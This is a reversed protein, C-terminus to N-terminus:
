VQLGPSCIPTPPFGTQTYTNWLSNPAVQGGTAQLPSWYKQPPKPPSQTDRAYQVTPDAQLFGNTEANPKYVRNWYVSAVGGRDSKAGTEREVISALTLM